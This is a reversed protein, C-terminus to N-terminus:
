TRSGHDASDKAVVPYDLEHRGSSHTLDVAGDIRPEATGHRDFNQRRVEGGIGVGQAAELALRSGHGRERM